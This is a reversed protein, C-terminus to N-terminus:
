AKEVTGSSKSKKFYRLLGYFFVENKKNSRASFSFDSANQTKNEERKNTSSTRNLRGTADQIMSFLRVM